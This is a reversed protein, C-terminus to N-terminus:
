RSWAHRQTQERVVDLVASRSTRRCNSAHDVCARRVDDEQLLRGAGGDDFLNGDLAAHGLPLRERLLREREQRSPRDVVHRPVPRADRPMGEDFDHRRARFHPEEAQMQASHVGCPGFPAAAELQARQQAADSMMFAPKVHQGSVEVRERWALQEIHSLPPRTLHRV